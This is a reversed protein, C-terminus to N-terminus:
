KIPQTYDPKAGLETLNCPATCISSFRGFGNQRKSPGEYWRATLLVTLRTKQKQKEPVEWGPLRRRRIQDVSQRPSECISALSRSEPCGSAMKPFSKSASLLSMAM